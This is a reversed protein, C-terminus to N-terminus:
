QRLLSRAVQGDLLSRTEGETVETNETAAKTGHGGQETTELSM